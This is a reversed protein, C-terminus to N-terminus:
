TLLYDQHILLHCMGIFEMGKWPIGEFAPVTQPLSVRIKPIPHSKVQVQRVSTCHFQYGLLVWSFNYMGM